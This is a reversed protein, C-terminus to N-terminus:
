KLLYFKKISINSSKIVKFRYLWFTVEKLYYKSKLRLAIFYGEKKFVINMDEIILLKIVHLFIIEFIINKKLTLLCFIQRLIQFLNVRIEIEKVQFKRQKM